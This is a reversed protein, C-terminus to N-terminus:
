IATIFICFIFSTVCHFVAESTLVVNNNMYGCSNLSRYCRMSCHLCCAVMIVVLIYLFNGQLIVFQLLPLNIFYFVGEICNGHIFYARQLKWSYFVGEICNGHIFYMQLKWAFQVSIIEYCTVTILVMNGTSYQTYLINIEKNLQILLKLQGRIFYQFNFAQRCCSM